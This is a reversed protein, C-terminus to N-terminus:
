GSMEKQNESVFHKTFRNLPLAYLLVTIGIVFFIIFALLEGIDKPLRISLFFIGTGTILGGVIYCAISGLKDKM